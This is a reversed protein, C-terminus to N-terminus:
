SEVAGPFGFWVWPRSADLSWSRSARARVGELTGRWLPTLGSRFPTKVESASRLQTAALHPPSYRSAFSWDTPVRVRNPRAARRSESSHVFGPVLRGRQHSLLAVASGPIERYGPTWAPALLVSIFAIAPPQPTTPSPITPLRLVHLLSLQRPCARHEHEYLRLATGAATLADM